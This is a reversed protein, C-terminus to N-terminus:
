RALSAVQSAQVVFQTVAVKVASVFGGADYVEAPTGKREPVYGVIQGETKEGRIITPPNTLDVRATFRERIGYTRAMWTKGGTAVTTFGGPTVIQRNISSQGALYTTTVNDQMTIKMSLLIDAAKENIEQQGLRNRENETTTKEKEVSHIEASIADIEAYTGYYEAEYEAAANHEAARAENLRQLKEENTNEKNYVNEANVRATAAAEAAAKKAEVSTTLKKEVATKKNELATKQNALQTEIEELNAKPGTIDVTITSQYEVILDLLVAELSWVEGVVPVQGSVASISFKGEPSKYPEPFSQAPTGLIETGKTTPWDNIVLPFSV